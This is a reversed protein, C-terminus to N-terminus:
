LKTCLYVGDAIPVMTATVRKDNRILESIAVIAKTSDDHTSPDNIVTGDWLVNDVAIIGGPRLLKLCREYYGVYNVKDADIFALDFKGEKGDAILADLGDLGPGVRFDILGDVGAAKWADMGVKAYDESVDFGILKGTSGNDKLALGLALATTGRFVGVELINNLRMTRVLWGLFQAEDPAGMMQAWEMKSATERLEAQIPQENIHKLVYPYLAPHSGLTPAQEHKATM